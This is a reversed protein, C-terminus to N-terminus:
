IAQIEDCTGNMYNSDGRARTEELSPNPDDHWNIKDYNDDFRKRSEGDSKWEVGHSSPMGGM